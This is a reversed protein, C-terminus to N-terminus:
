QLDSNNKGAVKKKMKELDNVLREYDVATYTTDNCIDKNDYGKCPRTNQLQKRLVLIDGAAEELKSRLM